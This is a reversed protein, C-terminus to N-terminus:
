VIVLDGERIGDDIMSDGRVQMVFHAGTRLLMPPILIPEHAAFVEVPQGAMVRGILPLELLSATAPRKLL